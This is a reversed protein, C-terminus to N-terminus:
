AAGAGAIRPTVHHSPQFAAATGWGPTTAVSPSILCSRVKTRLTQACFYQAEMTSSPDHLVADSSSWAEPSQQWSELWRSAQDKVQKDEHHYLANLAELLQAAGAM